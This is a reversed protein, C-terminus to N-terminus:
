ENEDNKEDTNDEESQPNERADKVRNYIEMFQDGTITEKDILFRAIEDLADRNEKLIGMAKDYCEKLVRVIENDVATKTEESCNSVSRGDLYKNQISELGAMGFKDSMGYQTIMNRTLATAREIDNAAGTTKTNFVLEEAARGALFVTVQDLIEDKSMLYKEEEEPMQMTYGLSGMTRPVITIKHVPQTHKQVATALAHGVEHFSVIEKEKESLIRDKKEKGAIIVEVAEMLDEQSVTKRGCRVARLAAENVMNALDAGAAGSTALAMEHLNIDPETKVHKIHVKLIDERGKLDPKEVIIRRDFRGPRLLAKDLVEPRNTAAIVVLGKSSDFGDMENLLQNLTQEREDNSSIQNDRSKGIADIEDIFIICPAKASAQKFLDRVRSAGVGVFMEVFESGSLSFFPVKAEGAVAKALLTKGTGPPGVLLAGRPQKAGIALYKSPNHLYDVIEDLSEKAEEQGAVDNFTVGTANEVSYLKANSQGIGMIGGGGGMKKSMSRTLFFFLLYIIGLPLIWTLIFNLIPNDHQIPTSYKVGNEDLLSLLREDYIYGTYYVKRSNEKAKQIVEEPDVGFMRIFSSTQSAAEDFSKDSEDFKEYVTLQEKNIIVEDVKGESLMNLFDSYSIEQKKPSQLSLMLVNLLVTAVVSIALFILLPNKLPSRNKKDNNM